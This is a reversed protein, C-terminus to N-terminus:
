PTIARTPVGSSGRCTATPSVARTWRSPRRRRRARRSTSAAFGRSNGSPATWARRVRSSTCNRSRRARAAARTPSRRPSKSRARAHGMSEPLRDSGMSSRPTPSATASRSGPGSAARDFGRYGVYIGEAYTVQYNKGPFNHSDPYDRRRVGVTDVLKGSPNVDGFLLAALARGGMEGPIGAQVVAAVQGIWPMEVPGGNNTVVITHPNASAIAAIEADQDGPLHMYPRDHGEGESNTGVVIIAVDASRALEAAGFFPDAWAPPLDKDSDTAGSPLDSVTAAGDELRQRIGELPGVETSPIVYGSGNTGTQWTQERPGLVVIKLPARPDLPLLHADNKLLVMGEAAARYALQRHAASGVVAPDRAPPAPDALGCRIMARLIDRVNSDVASQTIWGDALARKVNEATLLHPGPEDLDTTANVAGAVDHVADWDSVVLGDYGWEGRLVDDLLYWNATSYDGNVKNYAAMVADAHATKVAAEFAPLYIERLAREGVHVNVAWRDSDENNCAFHKVCAGVGTAQLGEIFPVCMQSALYPDESMYESNRGCLPSRHINVGPAFEMNVGTGKNKAEEGIAQGVQSMLARDWSSAVVTTGPFATAPGRTSRDGGRVGEGADAFTIGNLGLRPISQSSFSVGTLLSLKEDETLRQFLDDVRAALPAQPSRFIPTPSPESHVPVSGLPVLVLCLLLRVRPSHRM